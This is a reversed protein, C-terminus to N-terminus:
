FRREISSGVTKRMRFHVAVPHKVPILKVCGPDGVGDLVEDIELRNKAAVISFDAM